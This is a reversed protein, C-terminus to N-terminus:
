FLRKEDFEPHWGIDLLLEHPFTAQFLDEKLQDAIITIALTRDLHFLDDKSKHIFDYYENQDASSEYKYIAYISIWKRTTFDETPLKQAINDYGKGELGYWVSRPIIRNNNM